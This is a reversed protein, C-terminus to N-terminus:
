TPAAARKQVLAEPPDVHCGFTAVNLTHAEAKEGGREDRREGRGASGGRRLEDVPVRAADAEGGVRLSLRQQGVAGVAEDPMHQEPARDVRADRRRSALLHLELHVIGAAPMEVAGEGPAVEGAA